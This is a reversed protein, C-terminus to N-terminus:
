SAVFLRNYGNTNIEERFVFRNSLESLSLDHGNEDLFGSCDSHESLM